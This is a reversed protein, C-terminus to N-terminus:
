PLQHAAMPVVGLSGVLLAAVMFISVEALLHLGAPLGLRLLPVLGARSGGSWWRDPMWDRLRGSRRMWCLLVVTTVVRSTMTAYGAGELGSAPFGAHGYIWFWNLVANLGVGGLMIWLPPWPSNLADAQNKLAMGLLAPALSLACTFLYVPTAATVESPQGFWPLVPLLLAFGLATLVGLAMALGAGNRLTNRGTEADGAGAAHATQMAVSSLLGVGFVLPVMLLSNAFAAAALQVTGVRGIMVTDVVGMLMQALQGFVLPVALQLTTRGEQWFTPNEVKTLM